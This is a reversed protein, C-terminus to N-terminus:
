YDASLNKIAYHRAKNYAKRLEEPLISLISDRLVSGAVRTGRSDSFAWLTNGYGQQKAFRFVDEFFSRVSTFAEDFSMRELNCVIGSQYDFEIGAGPANVAPFLLLETEGSYRWKSERELEQIISVFAENSFLWNVGGICAVAKQDAHHEPPWYAGYGACFFNVEEGSRVHFFPLYDIIESKALPSSPHCLLIGIVKTSQEDISRSIQGGLPLDMALSTMFGIEHSSERHTVISGCPLQSLLCDKISSVSAAELM